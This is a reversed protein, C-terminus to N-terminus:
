VDLEITFKVLKETFEKKKEFPLGHGAGAIEEFRLNPLDSYRRREQEFEQRSWVSSNGGRLFLIPMGRAGLDRIWAHLDTSRADQLTQILSARDFPFSVDGHPSTVSVAMLYQAMARDPAHAEMFARAELRSSFTDPLQGLFTALRDNLGGGAPGALGLDVLILGRVWEPRLHAAACASRVGMSHGVIWSPFFKLTELTEIVDKGFDLPTFGSLDDAPVRSLGHGRQDPAMVSFYEQLTTSIPHWLAGTGGLGHLLVIKAAQPDKPEWCKFHLKMSSEGMDQTVFLAGLIWM